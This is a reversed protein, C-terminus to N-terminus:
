NSNQASSASFSPRSCTSKFCSSRSCSFRSRSFHSRSFSSRSSRSFRSGASLYRCSPLNTRGQRSLRVEVRKKVLFAVSSYISYCKNVFLKWHFFYLTGSPFTNNITVTVVSKSWNLMVSTVQLIDYLIRFKAKHAIIEINIKKRGKWAKQFRPVLCVTDTSETSM